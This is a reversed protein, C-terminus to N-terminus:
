ATVSRRNRLARCVTVRSANTYISLSTQPMSAFGTDVTLMAPVQAYLATAAHVADYSRLGHRRMIGSVDDSVEDLEV